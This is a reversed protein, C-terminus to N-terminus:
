LKGGVDVASADARVVPLVAGVVQGETTGGEVVPQIGVAGLLPGGDPTVIPPGNEEPGLTREESGSQEATLDSAAAGADRKAYEETRRAIEDATYQTEVAYHGGHVTKFRGGVWEGRM